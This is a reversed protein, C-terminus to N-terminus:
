SLSLQDIYCSEFEPELNLEVTIMRERLRDMEALAGRDLMALYTGGLSSNGIVQIQKEQMRPLLGCAIAHRVNVHMGFGGALYVTKLEDVRVKARNLLTLIGAGIAAKAQLLKSVDLESIMVGSDAAIRLATGHGDATEVLHPGADPVADLDFRGASTLFGIARAQALFDLYASGCIGQANMKGIVEENIEFPLARMAIHAVAGDGARMGSSMGAGEFAPGAATACGYLADGHKLVIEGNTGIDVLLCPGEDYLLGSALIGASLDAGVYAACGPLLHVEGPAGIEALAPCSIRRYDLFSPTFPAIGLSRPNVGALLHLMTTNGAVAVCKIPNDKGGAKAVAQRLLPVITQEVIAQQLTAVMADDHCLNIRTVVDDGLQIQKNFDATSAVIKGTTLETLLVVVTTTGIDIAAGLDGPRANPYIPDNGAPVNLRFHSVIQPGYKLSSRQPIRVTLNKPSGEVRHMCARVAIVEQGNEGSSVIEVVCGECLGRQGCRTNLPHGAQKLADALTGERAPVIERRGNVEVTIQGTM